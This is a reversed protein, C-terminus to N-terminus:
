RPNQTIGSAQIENDPIPFVYRKDNAPLTYTKGEYTRTITVAFRPDPNLRRLDSWRLGRGFLERRREALILPLISQQDATLPTFRGTKFRKELLTNLDALALDTKGQRAYCEARIILMESTTLGGFMTAGGFYSGKYGINGTPRLVFYCTKRLDDPQYTKYLLSDVGTLPSDLIVMPALSQHFIVEPNKGTLVAPLPRAAAPNLTNYDLLLDHIALSSSAAELAKDYEGMVLYVRALLARAAQRSPRSVYLPQHSAMKNESENLDAIIRDYTQQLTGRQSIENVDMDLRIPLGLLSPAASKEYPAAFVQALNFLSMARIFLASGYVHDWSSQSVSDPKIKSLGDLVVNAYFISKYSNDWHNSAQGEFINAAWLYTNRDLASVNGLNADPHYFEDTAATHLGPGSNIGGAYADLLAQMHSLETPVVLAKSPKKDLFDETCCCLTAVLVILILRSKM